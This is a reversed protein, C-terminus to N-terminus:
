QTEEASLPNLVPDESGSWEPFNDRPKFIVTGRSYFYLLQLRGTFPVTNPTISVRIWLHKFAKDKM